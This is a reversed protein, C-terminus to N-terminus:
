TFSPASAWSALNGDQLIQHGCTSQYHLFLTKLKERSRSMIVDGGGAQNTYNSDFATSAVAQWM